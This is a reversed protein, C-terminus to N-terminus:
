LASEMRAQLFSIHHNNTVIFYFHGGKTKSIDGGRSLNIFKNCKLAHMKQFFNVDGLIIRPLNQTREPVLATVPRKLRRFILEKKRLLIYVFGDLREEVTVTDKRLRQLNSRRWNITYM